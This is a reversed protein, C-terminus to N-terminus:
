CHDVCIWSFNLGDKPSIGPRLHFARHLQDAGLAPASQLPSAIGVDPVALDTGAVNVVAAVLSFQSGGDRGGM